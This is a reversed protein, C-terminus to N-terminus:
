APGPSLGGNVGTMMRVANSNSTSDKKNFGKAFYITQTKLLNFKLNLEAYKENFALAKTSLNQVTYDFDYDFSEILFDDAYQFVATNEDQLSHLPTTYINFVIPSLCSGQPIGGNVTVSDSGQTGHMKAKSNPSM